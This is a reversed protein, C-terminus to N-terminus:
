RHKEIAGHVDFHVIGYYGVPKEELAEELAKWTGVGVVDATIVHRPFEETANTVPLSVKRYPIDAEKDPRSVVVLVHLIDQSASLMVQLADARPSPTSIRSVQVSLSPCKLAAALSELSEWHICGWEDDTADELVYLEVSMSSPGDGKVGGETSSPLTAALEPLRLQAQLALGYEEIAKEIRKARADEFPEHLSYEEIYWRLSAEFGIMPEPRELNIENLPIWTSPGHGEGESHLRSVQAKLGQNKSPSAVRQILLVINAM